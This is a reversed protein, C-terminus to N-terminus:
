ILREKVLKQFESISMKEIKFSGIKHVLVTDIGDATCKKDHVAYNLAKDVDATYSTPLSFKKLVPILRKRVSDSCVPIMGISVCEGHYLGGCEAAEIGHGLTHGFNLVKRLGSEKEDEEVAFKKIRLSKEIVNEINEENVGENELIEFLEEDCTLSMKIAEAIGANLQRKSLTKLTDTDILVGKPQYFTGVINKTGSLNLGNKGGISSDVQSLFTTPVNYFDIGRMYVSAIFGALDGVVGGGVGVVCDRRTLGLELMLSLAKEACAFSKSAEGAGVTFIKADKCKEAIMKSYEVPVGDDTLIFVRRSLDFYEDAKALLNKGITIKYSREDLNIKLETM